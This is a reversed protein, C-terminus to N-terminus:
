PKVVWMGEMLERQTAGHEIAKGYLFTCRESLRRQEDFAEHAWATTHANHRKEFDVQMELMSIRAHLNEYQKATITVNNGDRIM